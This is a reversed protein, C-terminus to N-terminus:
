HELIDSDSYYLGLTAPRAESSLPNEFGFLRIESLKIAAAIRLKPSQAEYIVSSIKM